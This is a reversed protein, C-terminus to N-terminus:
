EEEEDPVMAAIGGVAGEETAIFGGAVAADELTVLQMKQMEGLKALAGKATEEKDYTIAILTSM